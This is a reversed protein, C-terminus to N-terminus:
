KEGSFRKIIKSTSVNEFEPPCYRKLVILKTGHKRAVTELYPVDFSDENVVYFNPKLNKLIEDKIELPHTENHLFPEFFAYDVPKLSDIMKIRMHQNFIPLGEGKNRKVRADSGVEVVLIDGYKKCEELFIVHGAHTVDFCGGAFVIKKDRHMERVRELESSDIIM